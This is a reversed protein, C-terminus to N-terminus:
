KFEKRKAQSKRQAECQCARCIRSGKKAIYTNKANWEHGNRCHSATRAAIVTPARLINEQKTVPELHDPNVCSPNRCLHDLELGDPIAGKYLNYIHRHAGTVKGLRKIKGYGKTTATHGTWQWCGSPHSKDIRGSPDKWCSASCYKQGARSPAVPFKKGCNLCINFLGACKM